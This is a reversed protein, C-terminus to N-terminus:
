ENIKNRYHDIIKEMEHAYHVESSPFLEKRREKWLIYLVDRLRKAPSKTTEIGEPIEVSLIEKNLSHFLEAMQTPDLERTILTIKLSGDKLTRIGDVLANQLNM